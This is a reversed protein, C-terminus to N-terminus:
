GASGLADIVWRLVAFAGVALLVILAIAGVAWAAVVGRSQRHAAGPATQFQEM